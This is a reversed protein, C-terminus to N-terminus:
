GELVSLDENFVSDMQSVQDDGNVFVGDSKVVSPTQYSGAFGSRQYLGGSEGHWFQQSSDDSSHSDPNAQGFVFAAMQNANVGGDAALMEGCCSPCICSGDDNNGCPMTIHHREFERLQALADNLMGHDDTNYYPALMFAPPMAADEQYMLRGTQMALFGVAEAKHQIEMDQSREEEIFFRTRVRTNNLVRVTATDAENFTQMDLFLAPRGSFGSEYNVFFPRNTVSTGTLGAEFRRGNHEGIGPTVAIFHIAESLHVQDAAEEEQLRIEFGSNGVNRIRSTTASWERNTAVQSFVVPKATFGADNQGTTFSVNRWNHNATTRGAEIRMGNELYYIGEEMVMYNVEELGHIKDLYEWEEIKVEFSTRTVNRVRITSPDSGERALGGFVVIPPTAYSNAFTFTKWNSDIKVTWVEAVARPGRVPEVIDAEVIYFGMSGYDIFDNNAHGVGEIRLYYNGQPVNLSISTAFQTPPNHTAIVQGAQNLLSISPKLNPHEAMPTVRISLPGEGAEIRFFDVDAPSSIFGWDFITTPSSLQADTATAMTNGHDDTRFTLGRNGMVVYDNETNTAGAYEGRSWQTNNASFPAGMIPGWSIEGSGTGPHYAQSNLGDHRLGLTHGVEHSATLGGVRFGKNVTFCPTDDARGFSNLIAIGGWPGNFDPVQQTMLSRIGYFQDSPSSRIIRDLGPDRTTVNVDFAAFDEATQQWTKQIEILEANSFTSPDGDLDFAPFVVNHGWANNQSHHGDFDLYITKTSFPNSELLFTDELRYPVPAAPDGLTFVGNIYAPFMAALLQRTELNEYQFENTKPFRKATRRTLNNNAQQNPRVTSGKKVQRKMEFTMEKNAILVAKSVEL